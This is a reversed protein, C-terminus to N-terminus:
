SGPFKPVMIRIASQNPMPLTTHLAPQASRYLGLTTCDVMALMAVHLHMSPTELSLFASDLGSLREM